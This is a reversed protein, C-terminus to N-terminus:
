DPRACQHILVCLRGVFVCVSCSTWSAVQHVFVCVSCFSNCIVTKLGGLSFKRNGVKWCFREKEGGDEAGLAMIPMLDQDCIQHCINVTFCVEWLASNGTDPSFFRVRIRCGQGFHNMKSTSNLPSYNKSPVDTIQILLLHGDVQCCHYLVCFCINTKAVLIEVSSSRLNNEM